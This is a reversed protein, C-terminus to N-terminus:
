IGGTMKKRAYTNFAVAALLVVGLFIQFWDGDVGTFFFGQSVIGFIM